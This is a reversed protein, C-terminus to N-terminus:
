RHWKHFFSGVLFQFDSFIVSRFTRLLGVPMTVSLFLADSVCNSHSVEIEGNDSESGLLFVTDGFVRNCFCRIYGEYGM